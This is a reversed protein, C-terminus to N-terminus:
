RATLVSQKAGCVVRAVLPWADLPARLTPQPPGFHRGNPTAIALVALMGRLKNIVLFALAEPAFSPAVLVFPQALQAAAECVAVLEDNLLVAQESVLVRPRDLVATWTTPDTIFHGVAFGADEILGEGTPEVPESLLPNSSLLDLATQDPLYLGGSTKAPTM